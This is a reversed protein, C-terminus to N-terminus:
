HISKSHASACMVKACCYHITYFPRIDTRLLADHIVKQKPEGYYIGNMTAKMM